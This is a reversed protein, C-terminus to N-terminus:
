ILPKFYPIDLNNVDRYNSVATAWCTKHWDYHKIYKFSDWIQDWLYGYRHEPETDHLILIEAKNALRKTEVIRREGPAHDVLVVSWFQSDVINENDWNEIYHLKHLDSNYYNYENLWEKNNDLSYLERKNKSSYEHLAKTSGFGVGLELIPGKTTELASFMIPKHSSWGALEKFFYENEKDITM